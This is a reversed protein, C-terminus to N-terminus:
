EGEPSEPTALDIDGITPTASIIEPTRIGGEVVFVKMYGFPDILSDTPIITSLKEDSEFSTDLATKTDDALDLEPVLELFRLGTGSKLGYKYPTAMIDIPKGDMSYWGVATEGSRDVSVGSLGDESYIGIGSDKAADFSFADIFTDLLMDTGSLDTTVEYDPRGAIPRLTSDRFVETPLPQAPKAAISRSAIAIPTPTPDAAAAAIDSVIATADKVGDFSTYYVFEANGGATITGKDSGIGIWRDSTMTSGKAPASEYGQASYVGLGDWLPSSTQFYSAVATTDNSFYTIQPAVDDTAAAFYSTTGTATSSVAAVSDGAAFTNEITNITTHSAGSWDTALQDADMTRRFRVSDLSASHVNTMTVTNKYYKDDVDFSILQEVKLKGDNSTIKASLTDGNSLMTLSCSSCTGSTATASGGIKYGTYFREEPTGPEYYDARLDVGVGFGDADGVLGMAAEGTKRGYFGSGTRFTASSAPGGGSDMFDGDTARIALEMYTGGLYMNSGFKAYRAGNSGKQYAVNTSTISKGSAVTYTSTGGSTSSQGWRIYVEGSGSSTLNQNLNIDGGSNLTLDYASSWSVADNINITNDATLTINSSGLSTALASGTIDGGSSAVTYTAPDILWNGTAGYASVTNVFFSDMFNVDSASTEVFGGDGGNPASADITGGVALTGKGMHGMLYIAGDEGTELTQAQILGSNNIASSRIDDSSQSTLYVLGGDAVISGSNDIISETVGKNVQIKYTDGFDVTVDSGVGMLVSENNATITGSNYIKAAVFAVGGASTTIKGQNNVANSSTGAFRFQKSTTDSEMMDLTTAILGGVSVQATPSFLIGNPNVLFVHGNANLTGFINSPNSGLVRNLAVSSSSPQVFNVTKGSGISFSDWNISTSNTTQTVTMLDSTSTISAAGSIVSGGVPLDDAVAQISFLFAMALALFKRLLLQTEKRKMGVGLLYIIQNILLLTFFLTGLFDKICGIYTNCQSHLKNNLINLKPM